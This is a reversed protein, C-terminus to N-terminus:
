GNQNRILKGKELQKMKETIVDEFASSSKKSFTLRTGIAGCKENLLAQANSSKRKM